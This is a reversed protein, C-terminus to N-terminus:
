LDFRTYEICITATGATSVVRVAGLNGAILVAFGAAVRPGANATTSATAAPNTSDQRYRLDGGGPEVSILAHTAGAPVGPLGVATTVAAFGYGSITPVATAVEVMPMNLPKGADLGLDRSRAREDTGTAFGYNATV